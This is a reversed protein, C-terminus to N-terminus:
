GRAGGRARGTRVYRRLARLRRSDRRVLVFSSRASSSAPRGAAEEVVEARFAVLRMEDLAAVQDERFHFRQTWRTTRSMMNGPRDPSSTKRARRARPSWTGTSMSVALSVDDVADDTELQPGVVVEGLGERQTLEQGAHAGQQAPRPDGLSSRGAM